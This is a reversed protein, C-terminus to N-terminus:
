IIEYQKLKKVADVDYQKEITLRKTSFFLKLPNPGKLFLFNYASWERKLYYKDELIELLLLDNNNVHKWDYKHCAKSVKRIFLYCELARVGIIAIIFIITVM